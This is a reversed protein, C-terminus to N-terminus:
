KSGVAVKKEKIYRNRKETVFLLSALAYKREQYALSSTDMPEYTNMDHIKQLEKIEATDAGDIGKNTNFHDIM